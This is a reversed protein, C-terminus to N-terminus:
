PTEEPVNMPPEAAAIGDLRKLADRASGHEPNSRLAKLYHERALDPNGALEYAVALNSQADAETGAGRFAALAEAMRGCGALAFGLNMRYKPVRGDLSVAKALADAAEKHRSVSLRLFGLNNWSSANTPETDVAREFSRIADEVRGSDAEILGLLQWGLPEKPKMRIAERLLPEAEGPMGDIHMAWGQYLAILGPDAKEQVALILVQRAEDTEGKELLAEAIHLRVDNRGERTTWAPPSELVESEKPVCAGLLAFLWLASPRRM